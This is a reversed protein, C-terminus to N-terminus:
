SGEDGQRSRTLGIFIKIEVKLKVVANPRKTPINKASGIIGNGEIRYISLIPFVCRADLVFLTGGIKFGPGKGNGVIIGTFFNGESPIDFCFINFFAISTQPHAYVWGNSKIVHM